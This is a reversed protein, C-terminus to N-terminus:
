EGVGLVFAAYNEVETKGLPREGRLDESVLRFDRIEEIELTVRTQRPLGTSFFLVHREKFSRIVTEITVVGPWIFLLRPPRTGVVGRGGEPPITLAHVFGLFDHIDVDRDAVKDLVFELGTIKRNDTGTYQLPRHSLGPVQIQQYAVSVSRELTTPNFPVKMRELTDLNILEARPARRAMFSSSM